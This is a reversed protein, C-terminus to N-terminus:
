EGYGAFVGSVDSLVTESLWSRLQMSVEQLSQGFLCSQGCCVPLGFLCRVPRIPGEVAEYVERLTVEESPRALRFGGGPGPMSSVLGARSLHQLVKSLHAPSAGITEAISRSPIREEPVAALLAAAHLALSAAESVHVPNSM